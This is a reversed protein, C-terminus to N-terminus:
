FSVCEQIILLIISSIEYMNHTSLTHVVVVIATIVSFKGTKLHM